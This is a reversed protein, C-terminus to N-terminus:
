SGPSRDTVGSASTSPRLHVVDGATVVRETGDALTVVLYGEDTMATATGAFAERALEVRVDRGLTASRVSAADV